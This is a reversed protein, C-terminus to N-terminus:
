HQAHAKFVEARQHCHSEFKKIKSPTYLDYLNLEQFHTRPNFISTGCIHLPQHIFGFRFFFNFNRYFEVTKAVFEM